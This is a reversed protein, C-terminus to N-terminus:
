SPLFSREKASPQSKGVLIALVAAHPCAVNIALCSNCRRKDHFYPTDQPEGGRFSSLRCLYVAQERITRTLRFKKPEEKPPIEEEEYNFSRLKGLNKPLTSFRGILSCINRHYLAKQEKWCQAPVGGNPHSCHPLIRPEAGPLSLIREKVAVKYNLWRKHNVRLIPYDESKPWFLYRTYETTLFDRFKKTFVLRVRYSHKNRLAQKRHYDAKGGITPILNRKPRPWVREFVRIYPYTGTEALMPLLGNFPQSELVEDLETRSLSEDWGIM